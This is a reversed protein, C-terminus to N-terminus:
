DVRLVDKKGDINGTQATKSWCVHKREIEISAVADLKRCEWHFDGQLENAVSYDLQM